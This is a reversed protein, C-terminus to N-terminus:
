KTQKGLEYAAILIDKISSVSTEIFDESDNNRTELDGRNEIAYIRDKAIELLKNYEKKTTKNEGKPEIVFTRLCFLLTGATPM